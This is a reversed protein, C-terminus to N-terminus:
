SNSDQEIIEAFHPSILILFLKACEHIIM